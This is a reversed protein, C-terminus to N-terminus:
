PSPPRKGCREQIAGVLRSCAPDSPKGLAGCRMLAWTASQMIQDRAPVDQCFAADVRATKLCSELFVKNTAEALIGEVTPLRRVAESVCAPADKGIGFGGGERMVAKGEERLRESNSQLWLYAGGCTAAAAVLLTVVAGLAIKSPTSLAM